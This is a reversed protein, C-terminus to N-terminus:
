TRKKNRTDMPNRTSTGVGRRRRGLDVCVFRRSRRRRRRVSSCVMLSGRAM